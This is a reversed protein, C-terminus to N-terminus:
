GKPSQAANGPIPKKGYPIAKVPSGPQLAQAGEVVVRDGPRLGNTILWSQGVTRPATLVRLALKGDPAIVLATPEGRNNRTVAQQPITIARIRTGEVLKARVFMGPLLLGDRNPFEARITQSGTSPDVTVDTFKILGLQPYASGDEMTLRIHAVGGESFDGALFQRRLRLVDTSAQQIDVYIPDLRQITTLPLPQAASVLAGTTITSRGIRGSIPAKILTRALNIRASRLTAEASAVDASAQQAGTRANEFDQPAVANIKVLEAYRRALGSSSAIQARARQLSAQASAVQAAYPAPDIRYLPQGQQVHDGEQFLRATVLGDVQPRVDSTEFASTRAPLETALTVPQEAVTVFQVEAPGSAAVQPGASSCGFLAAM